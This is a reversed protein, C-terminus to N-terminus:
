LSKDIVNNCYIYVRFFFRFSILMQVHISDRSMCVTFHDCFCALFTTALFFFSVFFHIRINISLVSLSADLLMWIVHGCPLFSSISSILKKLSWSQDSGFQCTTIKLANNNIQQRYQIWGPLSRHHSLFDDSLSHIFHELSLFDFCFIHHTYKILSQLFRFLPEWNDSSDTSLSLTLPPSSHTFWPKLECSSVISWKKWCVRRCRCVYQLLSVM